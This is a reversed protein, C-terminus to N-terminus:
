KSLNIAKRAYCQLCTIYTVQNDGTHTFNCDSCILTHTSELPLNFTNCWDAVIANNLPNNEM